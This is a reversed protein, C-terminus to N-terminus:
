PSKKCNTKPEAETAKTCPKAGTVKPYSEVILESLFPLDLNHLVNSM